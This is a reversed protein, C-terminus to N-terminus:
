EHNEGPTKGPASTETEREGYVARMASAITATLEKEPLPEEMAATVLRLVEAESFGARLCDKGISYAMANRRGSPIGCALKAAAWAPIVGTVVPERPREPPAEHVPLVFGESEVSVIEKCPYFLRAVDTAKEDAPYLHALHRMNYQYTRQDTIPREWPIAVRFCDISRGIKLKDTRHSKTTGIVHICDSFVKVAEALQYDPDEFDLVAWRSSHFSASRREGARWVCGSWVYGAACKALRQPDMTDVARWGSAYIRPDGTFPHPHWSFM